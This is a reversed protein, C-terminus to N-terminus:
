KLLRGQPGSHSPLGRGELGRLAMWACPAPQGDFSLFLSAATHSDPHWLTIQLLSGLTGVGGPTGGVQPCPKCPAEDGPRAGAGRHSGKPAEQSRGLEGGKRGGRTRSGERSVSFLSPCAAERDGEEGGRDPLTAPRTAWLM